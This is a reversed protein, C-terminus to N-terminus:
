KESQQKKYPTRIIFKIVGVFILVVVVAGMGLTVLNDKKSEIQKEKIVITSLAGDLSNIDKEEQATLTFNYINEECTFLYLKQLHSIGEGGENKVSTKLVIELATKGNINETKKYSIIEINGEMDLSKFAEVGKTALKEAYEKMDDDGLDEVCLEDTNEEYSVAFTDGNDSIFEDEGVYEFDDPLDITYLSSEEFLYASCPVATVILALVFFLAILKKM